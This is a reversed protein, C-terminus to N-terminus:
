RIPPPQNTIRWSQPVSLEPLSPDPDRTARCGSVFAIVLGAVLALTILLALDEAETTKSDPRM